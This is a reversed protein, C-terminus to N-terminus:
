ILFATRPPTFAPAPAQGTATTQAVEFRCVTAAGARTVPGILASVAPVACVADCVAMKAKTACDPRDLGGAQMSMGAMAVSAGAKSDAGPMVLTGAMFVAILLAVLSRAFSSM